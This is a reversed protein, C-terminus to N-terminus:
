LALAPARLERARDLRAAHDDVVAHEGVAHRFRGEAADLLAADAAHVALESQLAVAAHLGDEDIAEASLRLGEPIRIGRALQAQELARQADDPSSRESAPQGSSAASFPMIEVM